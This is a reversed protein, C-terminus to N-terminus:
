GSAISAAIAAPDGRIVWVLMCRCRDSGACNPNSPGLAVAQDPSMLVGDDAKECEGCTREDLVSTYYAGVIDSASLASDATRRHMM